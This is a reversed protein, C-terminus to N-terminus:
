NEHIFVKIFENTYLTVNKAIKRAHEVRVEESYEFSALNNKKLYNGLFLLAVQKDFEM